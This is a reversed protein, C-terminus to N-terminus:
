KKLFADVENRYPASAQAGHRTVSIAAAANAFKVAEELGKGESLSITLAACFTDGAAVTDVTKGAKFGPVLNKYQTSSVYAGSEGMTIIVTEIGKNHLADCAKSATYLDSVVINTLIFAESQNPVIIDTNSLIKDPLELAPAPNLIVTKKYQKALKMGAEVTTLPIELQFLVADCAEIKEKAKKIDEENLMGNAGPAVVIINEGDNDIVIFAVGSPEQTDTYIFATNIKEDIFNKISIKGLADNGVKGILTVDAGLRAASVAQNAGKGGGTSIFSHGMLTQGPSPIQPSRVVMDTNISGIVVVKKM